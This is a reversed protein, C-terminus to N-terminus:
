PTRGPRNRGVRTAEGAGDEDDDDAAAGGPAAGPGLLSPDGTRAALDALSLRGTPADEVEEVPGSAPAAGQVPIAVGSDGARASRDLDVIRTSGVYDKIEYRTIRGIKKVIEAM